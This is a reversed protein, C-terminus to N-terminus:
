GLPSVANRDALLDVIVAFPTFFFLDPAFSDERGAVSGLQPLIIFM